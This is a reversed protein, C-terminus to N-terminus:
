RGGKRLVRLGDRTKGNKAFWVSMAVAVDCLSFCYRDIEGDPGGVEVYVNATTFSPTVMSQQGPASAAFWGFGATVPLLFFCSRRAFPSLRISRV